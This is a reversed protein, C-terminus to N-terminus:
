EVKVLPVQLATPRRQPTCLGGGDSPRAGFYLLDRDADLKVLDYEKPCTHFNVGLVSCGTAYINQLRNIKWHRTGCTNPAGSNLLNVAVETHPTLTANTFSFIADTAGPVTTSAKGLVYPGDIVITFTPLTCAADSYFHLKASAFATGEVFNRKVYLNKGNGAPRTECRLSAWHGSINPRSRAQANVMAGPVVFVTAFLVPIVLLWLVQRKIRM